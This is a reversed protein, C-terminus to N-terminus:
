AMRAPRFKGSLSNRKFGQGLCETQASTTGRGGQMDGHLQSWIKLEIHVTQRIAESSEARASCDKRSITRVRRMTVAFRLLAPNEPKGAYLWIKSLCSSGVKPGNM